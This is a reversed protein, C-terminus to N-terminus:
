GYKFHMAVMEISNKDHFQLLFKFTEKKEDNCIKIIKAENIAFNQKIIKRSNLSINSM